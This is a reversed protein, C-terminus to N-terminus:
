NCQGHQQCWRRCHGGRRHQSPMTTTTITDSVGNSRQRRWRWPRGTGAAAAASKLDQNERELQQLAVVQGELQAIRAALGAAEGDNDHDASWGPHERYNDPFAPGAGGAIGTATGDIVSAGKEGSGGSGSGGDGAAGGAAGTSGSPPEDHDGDCIGYIAEVHYQSSQPLVIMSPSTTGSSSGVSTSLAKGKSREMAKRIRAIEAELKADVPGPDVLCEPQVILPSSRDAYLQECISDYKARAAIASHHAVNAEKGNANDAKREAYLKNQQDRCQLCKTLHGKSGISAWSKFNKCGKCWKIQLGSASHVWVTVDCATCVNKNQNAKKTASTLCHRGCRENRYQPM